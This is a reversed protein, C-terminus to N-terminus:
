SSAEPDLLPLRDRAALTRSVEIPHDLLRSAFGKGQADNRISAIGGGGLARHLLFNLAGIGPLDFREVEGEVQDALWQGVAQTTLTRRIPDLYDPKRAIVGINAKDGKDGSRAWALALLPVQVPDVIEDPSAGFGTDSPRATISPVLAPSLCQAHGGHDISLTLRDKAILFSFLRVVPSAKPRLAGFGTLGPPMALGLETMGQKLFIEIGAKEVHRAAVKMTTERLRATGVLPAGLIEVSTETLPPLNRRRLNDDVRRFLAKAFRQGKEAGESGYCTYTRGSRWGDAFTLSVKYESPAGWGRAGELRVRDPGTETIAVATFDCRVDPVVYDAPDGIEYLLQEAITAFRVAGGTDGPKSIECAGDRDIEAIPYGFNDAHDVVDRWDTFNGGTAQVGCEIIHGALTGAALLDFQDARWGFAHICAALTLASDVCRGTIVIDAGEALAAAIPFAGIYANISLIDAVPPFAENSYLETIGQASLETCQPLLDDGLVAVVKLTLGADAIARRLADACSVPNLGGANALLKVGRGAIAALNPLVAKTVFDGAYGAEPRAARARAMISMTVEALYDYVIYDLPGSDLLQRTAESSDGWFGSAGGVRISQLATM